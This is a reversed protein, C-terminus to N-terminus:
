ITHYDILHVFNDIESTDIYYKKFRRSIRSIQELVSYIEEVIQKNNKGEIEIEYDPFQDSLRFKKYKMLSHFREGEALIVFAFISKGKKRFQVYGIIETYEWVHFYKDNFFIDWRIREDGPIDSNPRNYFSEQEEIYKQLKVNFYRQHEERSRFYIPVSFLKKSGIYNQFDM